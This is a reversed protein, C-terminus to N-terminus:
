WLGEMIKEGYMKGALMRLAALKGFHKKMQKFDDPVTDSGKGCWSRFKFFLIISRMLIYGLFNVNKFPAAAELSQLGRFCKAVTLRISYRFETAPASTLFAKDTRFRTAIPAFYKRISYYLHSTNHFFHSLSHADLGLIGLLSEPLSAIIWGCFCSPTNRSAHVEHHVEDLEPARGICQASTTITDNKGYRSDEAQLYGQWCIREAPMHHRPVICPVISRICNLIVLAKQDSSGLKKWSKTLDFKRALLFRLHKELVNKAAECEAADVFVLQDMHAVDELFIATNFLVQSPNKQLVTTDQYEQLFQHMARYFFEIMGFQERLHPLLRVLVPEWRLASQCYSHLRGISSATDDKNWIMRVLRPEVVDVLAFVRKYARTMLEAYSKEFMLRMVRLINDESFDIGVRAPLRFPKIGSIRPRIDCTWRFDTYAGVRDQWYDICFDCPM